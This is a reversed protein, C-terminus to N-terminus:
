QGGGTAALKNRVPNAYMAQVIDRYDSPVAQLRLDFSAREDSVNSPEYSLNKDSYPLSRAEEGVQDFAM